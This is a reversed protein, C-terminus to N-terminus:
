RRWVNLSDVHWWRRATLSGKALTPSFGRWGQRLRGLKRADDGQTRSRPRGGRLEMGPEMVRAARGLPM